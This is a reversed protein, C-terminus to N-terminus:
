HKFAAADAERVFRERAGTMFAHRAALWRQAEAIEEDSEKKLRAYERVLADRLTDRLVSLAWFNFVSIALALFALLLVAYMM